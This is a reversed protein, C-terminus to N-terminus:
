TPYLDIGAHRTLTKLLGHDKRCHHFIFLNYGSIRLRNIRAVAIWKDRDVQSLGKWLRALRTWRLRLMNQLESPPEKPPAKLFVVTGRNFNRYCTWPGIDGQINIGLLHIADARITAV